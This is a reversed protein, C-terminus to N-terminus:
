NSSKDGSRVHTTGQRSSGNRQRYAFYYENIGEKRRTSMKTAVWKVSEQISRKPKRRRSSLVLFITATTEAHHFPCFLYFHVPLVAPATSRPSKM